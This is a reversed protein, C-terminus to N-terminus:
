GVKSYWDKNSAIPVEPNRAVYTSHVKAEQAGQRYRSETWPRMSALSMEVSLTHEANFPDYHRYTQELFCLDGLTFASILCKMKSPKYAREWM